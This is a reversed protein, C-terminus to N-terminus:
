TLNNKNSASTPSYRCEDYPSVHLFYKKEKENKKPKSTAKILNEVLLDGSTGWLLNEYLINEKKKEKWGMSWRLSTEILSDIEPAEFSTKVQSKIIKRKNKEKKM